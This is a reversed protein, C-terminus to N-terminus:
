GVQNVNTFVNQIKSNCIVNEFLTHREEISIPRFVFIFPEGIITQRDKQRETERDKQRETERDKDRDKFQNLSPPQYLFYILRWLFLSNILVNHKM